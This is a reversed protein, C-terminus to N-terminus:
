RPPDIPGTPEDFVRDVRPHFDGPDMLRIWPGHGQGDGGPGPNDAEIESEVDSFSFDLGGDGELSSNDSESDM